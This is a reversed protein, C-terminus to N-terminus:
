KKWTKEPAFWAKGSKMKNYPIMLLCHYEHHNNIKAARETAKSSEPDREAVLFM